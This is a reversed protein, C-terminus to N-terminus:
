TAQVEVQHSKAPPIADEVKALIDLVQKGIPALEYYSYYSPSRREFKHYILGLRTLEHLNRSLTEKHTVKRLSSQLNKQLETFSLQKKALLEVTRSSVDKQLLVVVSERLSVIVHRGKESRTRNIVSINSPRMPAFACAMAGVQTLILLRRRDFRDAWVGAWPGLVLIPLTGLMTVIGLATASQTLEWVVWGQATIQLWTGILSIAQGSLYIRFDRIRLPSFAARVAKITRNSMM